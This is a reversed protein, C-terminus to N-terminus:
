PWIEIPTGTSIAGWLEDMQQNTIAICGDTWNYQQTERASHSSNPSQGHIMIQGGPNIGLANARLQDEDNPYSIHIARYYASDYKKYDLTYRGEPTRQDGEELKHGKPRDGLAIRYQRMIKGNRMLVMKSTSKTVVVLDIGNLTSISSGIPDSQKSTASYSPECLSLYLISVLLFTLKHM